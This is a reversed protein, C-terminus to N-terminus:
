LEGEFKKVIGHSEIKEIMKLTGPRDFCGGRAWERTQTYLDVLDRVFEKSYIECEPRQPYGFYSCPENTVM